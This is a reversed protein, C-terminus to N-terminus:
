ESVKIQRAYINLFNVFLSLLLVSTYEEYMVRATEKGCLRRGDNTKCPNQVLNIRLFLQGRGSQGRVALRAARAQIVRGQQGHAVIQDSSTQGTLEGQLCTIQRTM